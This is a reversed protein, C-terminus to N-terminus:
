GDEGDDGNYHGVWAESKGPRRRRLFCLVRQDPSLRVVLDHAERGKLNSSIAGLAAAM